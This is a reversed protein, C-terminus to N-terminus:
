RGDIVTTETSRAVNGAADQAEVTYRVPTNAGLTVLDTYSTVGPPTEGIKDGNRYVVYKAVGVNDTSATWPLIIELEKSVVPASPPTTDAVGPPTGLTTVTLAYPTSMAGSRLVGRVEYTYVTGPQLGQDFWGTVLGGPGDIPKGNRWLAHRHLTPAPGRKWALRVSTTTATATVSLPRAPDTAQAFAFTATLLLSLCVCQITRM